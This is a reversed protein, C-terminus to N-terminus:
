TAPMLQPLGCENLVPIKRGSSDFRYDPIGAFFFKVKDSTRTFPNFEYSAKIHGDVADAGASIPDDDDGTSEADEPTIAEPVSTDLQTHNQDEYRVKYDTSFQAIHSAIDDRVADWNDMLDQLAARTEYPIRYVPEGNKTGVPEMWQKWIASQM